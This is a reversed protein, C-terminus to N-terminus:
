VTPAAMARGKHNAYGALMGVGLASLDPQNMGFGIGLLLLGGGADVPINWVDGVSEALYGGLGAGVIIEAGSVMNRVGQRRARVAELAKSQYKAIKTKAM